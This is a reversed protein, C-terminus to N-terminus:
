HSRPLANGAPCGCPSQSTQASRLSHPVRHPLSCPDAKPLSPWPNSKQGSLLPSATHKPTHQALAPAAPSRHPPPSCAAPTFPPPKHVLFQNFCGDSGLPPLLRPRCLTEPTPLPHICTHGKMEKTAPPSRRAWRARLWAKGQVGTKVSGHLTWGQEEEGAGACRGLRPRSRRSYM